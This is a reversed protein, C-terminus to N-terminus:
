LGPLDDGIPAVIERLIAVRAALKARPGQGLKRAERNIGALTETVEATTTPAPLRALYHLCRIAAARLRLTNVALPRAPPVPYRQESLFAAIDTAAAPLAPLHHRACWGCWARVGARYARRTNDAKARRALAEATRRATALTGDADPLDDDMLGDFWSRVARPDASVPPPRAALMPPGAPFTDATSTAATEPRAKDQGPPAPPPEPRPGAPPPPASVASDAM